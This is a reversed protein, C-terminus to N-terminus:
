FAWIALVCFRDKVRIAGTSGSTYQLFALSEGKLDPHQWSRVSKAEAEDTALWHLAKLNPNDALNSEVKSLISSTTLVVRARADRVIAELRSMKQNRRPPYAPIAVVGAYLCGFFAIVFEIGPPYLLLGIQILFLRFVKM